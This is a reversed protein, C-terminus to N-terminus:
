ASLSTDRATVAISVGQNDVSVGSVTLGMPLDPMRLTFGPLQVPFGAISIGAPQVMITNGSATTIKATTVLSGDTVKVANTGASPDASLTASTGLGLESAPLGSNGLASNLANSVGLASSLSSFPVQANGTVSDITAGNFSSTIHVGSATAHIGSIELNDKTSPGSTITVTKVDREAVQTLFPWGEITVTPTGPFGQAALKSAITKEAYSRAYGDGFYFVGGLIIVIVLLVILGRGRRKRRRPRQRDNDPYHRGEFYDDGPVGQSYRDPGYGDYEYRDQDYGDQEYRGGECYDQGYDGPGYGPEQGRTYEPPQEPWGGRSRPQNPYASM